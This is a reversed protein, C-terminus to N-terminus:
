HFKMSPRAVPRGPTRVDRGPTRPAGSRDTVGGASSRASAPPSSSGLTPALTERKEKLWRGLSKWEEEKAVAESRLEELQATSSVQTREEAEQLEAERALKERSYREERAAIQARAHAQMDILSAQMETERSLLQARLDTVQIQQKAEAAILKAELEAVKAAHWEEHLRAEEVKTALQARLEAQSDAAEAMQAQLETERKVLQARLGSEREAHEEYIDMERQELRQRMVEIRQEAAEERLALQERMEEERADLREQAEELREALRQEMDRMAREKEILQVNLEDNEAKLQANVDELPAKHNHQADGDESEVDAAHDSEGAEVEAAEEEERVLFDLAYDSAANVAIPPIVLGGRLTSKPVSNAVPVAASHLDTEEESVLSGAEDESSSSGDDLMNVWSPQQAQGSPISSCEGIDVDESARENFDESTLATTAASCRAAGDVPPSIAAIDKLRAANNVLDLAPPHPAAGEMIIRAGKNHVSEATNEELLARQHSSVKAYTEAARASPRPRQINHGALWTSTNGGLGRGVGKDKRLSYNYQTKNKSFKFNSFGFHEATLPSTRSRPRSGDM